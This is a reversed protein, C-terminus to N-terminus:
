HMGDLSLIVEGNSSIFTFTDFVVGDLIRALSLVFNFRVDEDSMEPNMICGVLMKTSKLLKILEDKTVQNDTNIRKAQNVTGAYIPGFKGGVEPLLATVKIDGDPTVAHIQREAVVNWRWSPMDYLKAVIRDWNVSICFITYAEDSM